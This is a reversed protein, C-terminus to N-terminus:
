CGCASKFTRYAKFRIGKSAQVVIPQGSKPNRGQREPRTTVSLTGFDSIAVRHGQRLPEALTKITAAVIISAQTRPISLESALADILDARTFARSVDKNSM